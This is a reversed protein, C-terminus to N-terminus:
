ESAPNKGGSNHCDSLIRAPAKLKAPKNKPKTHLAPVCRAENQWSYPTDSDLTGRTVAANAGEFQGTTLSSLNEELSFSARKYHGASQLMSALWQMTASPNFCTKSAGARTCTSVACGTVESACKALGLIRFFKM